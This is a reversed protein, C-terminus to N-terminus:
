KVTITRLSIPVLENGGSPTQVFVIIEYVGQNQNALVAANLPLEFTFVNGNMKVPLPTKYEATHFSIHPQPMNYGGTKLLDKASIPKPLDIRAVGIGGFKYPPKVTGEIHINDGPRATRPLPKYDGYDDLFEHVLCAVKSNEATAVAIGVKNHSPNLINKRHGDNPPVENIYASEVKEIAAPDYPGQENLTREKADGYCGANESAMDDGGAETYRLEPVSGDTGWHATFGNKAMDRVHRAAAQSAIEDIVVPKLGATARDRNILDLAYQRAEALNLMKTQREFPKNPTNAGTNSQQQTSGTTSTQGPTTAPKCSYQAVSLVLVGVMALATRLRAM